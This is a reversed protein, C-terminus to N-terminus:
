DPIPLHHLRLFTLKDWYGRQRIIKGQRVEFFGCGQLGIPDRWELVVWEGEALIQEVICTMEARSFEAEFMKRIAERGVVPSEPIQHNVADRSYLEALADADARNFAEVWASIVDKPNM